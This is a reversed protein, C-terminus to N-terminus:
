QPPRAPQGSPTGTRELPRTEFRATDVVARRHTGRGIVALDDKVVGALILQRGEIETLEAEVTIAVGPPTPAEHSIDVHVGLAAEGADPHGNLVQVFAWAVIGVLYGTALAEPLSAFGDSEPLVYPVTRGPPVVYALKATPGPCLTGKM